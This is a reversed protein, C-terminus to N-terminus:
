LPLFFLNIKFVSCQFKTLNLKVSSDIKPEKDRQLSGVLEKKSGSVNILSLRYIRIAGSDLKNELCCYIVEVPIKWADRETM